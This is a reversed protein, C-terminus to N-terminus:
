RGAPLSAADTGTGRPADPRPRSRSETAPKPLAALDQRPDFSEALETLDPDPVSQTIILAEARAQNLAAKEYGADSELANAYAEAAARFCGTRELAIGLNNQVTALDPRLLGAKSLPPLALSFEEREIWLLGLNNLSWVDEPEIELARAYARAADAPRGVAHLVRALVRQVEVSEPAREAAREIPLTALEPQGRDLRVRALNTLSKVHDPERDLASLFAPEASPLDGSKWRSLGLMYHGWVNKPHSEVYSAFGGAALDYEGDQYLTEADAYSM